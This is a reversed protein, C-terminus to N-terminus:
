PAGSLTTILQDLKRQTLWLEAVVNACVLATIKIELKVLVGAVESDAGKRERRTVQTPLSVGVRAPSLASTRNITGVLRQAQNPDFFSRKIAPHM